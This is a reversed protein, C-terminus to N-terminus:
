DLERVDARACIEPQARRVMDATFSSGDYVNSTERFPSDTGSVDHHDRSLVIPATIVGSRIADNFRLAIAVRARADAYLIRAQSGVVMQNEEARRIWLLNDSLQQAVAVPAGVSCEELVKAAIQDTKRLDEAKGSTCIWRFPGFGLSFVDGVFEQIYSPYRFKSSDTPSLVDAGARSSELLFANGYDWFRLGRQSVLTNIAAVHRRLSSQVAEKFRAPDSEMLAKAEQFSYGVPYYGGGFPNHLSTQDSGLDVLHDPQAVLAEWLDVINGLYGIALASKAARAARIRPMLEQLSECCEDIWGQKLRKHLAAPDIEAIVSVCGCIRGAKGQAGSM